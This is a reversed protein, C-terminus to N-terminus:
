ILYYEKKDITEKKPEATSKGDWAAFVQCAGVMLFALAFVKTALRSKMQM